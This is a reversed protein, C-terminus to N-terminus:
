RILGYYDLGMVIHHMPPASEDLDGAGDFAISDLDIEADNPITFLAKLTHQTVPDELDFEEITATALQMKLDLTLKM